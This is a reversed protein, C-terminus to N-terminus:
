CAGVEPLAETFGGRPVGRQREFQHQCKLPNYASASGTHSISGSLVLGSTRAAAKWSSDGGQTDVASAVIPERMGPHGYSARFAAAVSARDTAKIGEGMVTMAEQEVEHPSQVGASPAKLRSETLRGAAEGPLHETSAWFSYGTDGAGNSTVQTQGIGGAIVTREAKM